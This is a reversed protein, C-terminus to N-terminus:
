EYLKHTLPVGNGEDAKPTTTSSETTAKKLDAAVIEEDSCVVPTPNNPDPFKVEIRRTYNNDEKIVKAECDPFAKRIDFADTRNNVYANFGDRTWEYQVAAGKVGGAKMIDFLNLDARPDSSLCVVPMKFLEPILRAPECEVTSEGSHCWPARFVCASSISADHKPKSPVIATIYLEWGSKQKGEQWYWAPQYYANFGNANLLSVIAQAHEDFLFRDYTEVKVWEIKEGRELEYHFFQEYPEGGDEPLIKDDFTSGMRFSTYKPKFAATANHAVLYNKIVRLANYMKTTM